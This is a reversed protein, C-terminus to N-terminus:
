AIPHWIREAAPLTGLVEVPWRGFILPLATNSIAKVIAVKGALHAPTLDVFALDTIPDPNVLPANQGLWASLLPWRAPNLFYEQHFDPTPAFEPAAIIECGHLLAARQVFEGAARRMAEDRDVGAGYSIVMPWGPALSRGVMVCVKATQLDDAVHHPTGIRKPFQPGIEYISIDIEKCDGFPLQSREMYVDVCGCDGRWSRLVRDREVLEMAAARCAATWSDHAAVGNSKAYRWNHPQPSSPWVRAADLMGLPNGRMDKVAYSEQGAEADLIASRELLEFFAKRISVSWPGASSGTAVRGQGDQSALGVVPVQGAGLSVVDTFIDVAQWRGSLPFEERLKAIASAVM